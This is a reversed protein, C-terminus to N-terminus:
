KRRILGILLVGSLPMLWDFLRHLWALPGLAGPGTELNVRLIQVKSRPHVLELPPAVFRGDPDVVVSHGDSTVRIVPTATELARFVTMAVMQDLESGQRYWIENSLVALFRAGAAVHERSVDDFANDFCMLIGFPIGDATELLPRPRGIGMRPMYGVLGRCWDRIPAPMQDLWPMREAAPVPHRKEQWDILRGDSGFLAGSSYDHEPERLLSGGVLRVGEALRFPLARQPSMWDPPISTEPWIVLDPPAEAEPGALRSTIWTAESADRHLVMRATADVGPELGLIDVVETPAPEAGPPGVLCTLAWVCVPVALRVRAQTWRPTGVRWSRYCEVIAGSTWALVFNMSMEGGWEVPGLLSPWTYLAHSVQGHPYPIDPMHSRLVATGAIGLGFAVEGPLFRQGGRVWAVVLLYYVAGLVGIAVLAGGATFRLSWSFWVLHLLGIAYGLLYPRRSTTACTYFAALGAVVLWEAGPVVAPPMALGLALVAVLALVWRVRPM